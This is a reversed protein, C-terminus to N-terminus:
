VLATKVKKYTELYTDQDVATNFMFKGSERPEEIEIVKLMELSKVITRRDQIEQNTLVQSESLANITALRRISIKVMEDFDEPLTDIM